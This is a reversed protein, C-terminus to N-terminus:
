QGKLFGHRNNIQLRVEKYDTKVLVFDDKGVRQAYALAQCISM